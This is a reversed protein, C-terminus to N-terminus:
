SRLELKQTRVESKQNSWGLGQYLADVSAEPTFERRAREAAATGMRTRRDADRLLRDLAAVLEGPREPDILLGTEGDVVADPVGGNRGGISPRKALAAELFVIGFGEIDEGRLARNPMVHVDCLEYVAWKTLEDVAGLLHVAGALGSAHARSEIAAREPGEGAVIYRLSPWTDRLRAVAEVVLAFGKREVLRGVSAVVLGSGLGLERQLAMARGAIAERPPPAGASPRVIAPPTPAAYREVVISATEASIAVVRAADRVDRARWDPLRGYLASLLDAGYVFLHYPVGRRRCEECWFHSATDWIGVFVAGDGPRGAITRAAHRRLALFYAGTHLKRIAAVQDGVRGDLRREPLPPLPVLDYAHPWEAGDGCVTTAVTVPLRRGLADFLRHLYDAVGGTWPRFDTTLLVVSSPTTM